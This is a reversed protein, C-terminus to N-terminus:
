KEWRAAKKQPPLGAANGSDGVVFQVRDIPMASTKNLLALFRPALDRLQAQWTEDPVSIRLVGEKFDLARTRDAVKAGCVVPWALVPQDKAAARRLADVVIKELGARIPQM